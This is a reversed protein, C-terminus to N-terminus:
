INPGHSSSLITYADHVIQDCTVDALLADSLKELWGTIDFRSCFVMSDRKYRSEVIELLVRAETEKLSYLLWEDIILLAHSYALVNLRTINDDKKKAVSLTRM